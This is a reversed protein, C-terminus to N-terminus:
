KVGWPKVVIRGNATAIPISQQAGAAPKIGIQFTFNKPSQVVPSSDDAVALNLEQGNKELIGNLVFLSTSQQSSNAIFYKKALPDHEYIVYGFEVTMDKLDQMLMTSLLTKSATSVQGSIYIADTAGIHWSYHNMVGVAQFPKWTTLDTGTVDAKFSVGGIKLSTIYGVPAQKDKKPNFGQYVDLARAFQQAFVPLPALAGCALVVAGVLAGNVLSRRTTNVM